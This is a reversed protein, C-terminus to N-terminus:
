KGWENAAKDDHIRSETPSPCFVQDRDHPEESEAEVEDEQFFGVRGNDEHVFCGGETASREIPANVGFLLFDFDVEPFENGLIEATGQAKEDRFRNNEQQTDVHSENVAKEVEEEGGIGDDELLSVAEAGTYATQGIESHNKALDACTHVNGGRM